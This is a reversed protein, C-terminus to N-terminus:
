SKNQEKFNEIYQQLRELKPANWKKRHEPTVANLDITKPDLTNKGNKWFINQTGFWQPKDIKLLYRDKTAAALWPSLFHPKEFSLSKVALDHAKKYDSAKTGHHMLFAAKYYDHASKVKRKELLAQVKKRREADQKGLVDWDISDQSLRASQDEAFMRAIEKNNKKFYKKFYPKVKKKWGKSERLLQIDPDYAVHGLDPYGLELSKILYDMGGKPKKGLCMYRAADYHADARKEQNKGESALVKYKAADIYRGELKAWMSKFSYKTSDGSIVFTRGDPKVVQISHQAHTENSLLVFMVVAFVIVFRKM